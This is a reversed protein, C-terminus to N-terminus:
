EARLSKVPNANATKISIAAVTALAILLALGGSGVFIWWGVHMQCPDPLPCGTDSLPCHAPRKDFAVGQYIAFHPFPM